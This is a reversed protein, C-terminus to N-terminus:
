DIEDLKRKYNKVANDLLLAYENNALFEPDNVIENADNNSAILIDNDVRLDAYKFNMSGSQREGFFEGPGRNVLDYEALMFGDTTTELMKLRKESSETTHESALFCYPQFSSRMVRGRLQHLTAVGFREAGLILITTANVINVGVEIVSTAVLIDIEKNLFKTMVDEKEDSSLKGHILGVTAKGKFYNQMNHYIETANATDLSESENILPTVVYIQHGLSIESIMHKIVDKKEKQSVYKTIVQKRNKPMEKIISIDMDGYASISLTRPIPTASMKLYNVDEGKNRILVRQKVGFRHEEDAIVIGLNKYDVDKQFLAHTGIIINTKGSALDDLIQKRQKSSTSGTLLSINLNFDSLVKSLTEFHQKSLIETPCMLAAQFGFSVVAMIAFIAVITKGSGVEGQLLRNMAYPQKLDKFIDEIAKDQDSTLSYSLSNRLKDIVDMQPTIIPSNHTEERKKYLYKMSVNYDLLEEYKLTKKAIELEEMSNPQHMIRVVQKRPALNYKEIYKCPLTEKVSNIHRRLVKDMIEIYKAESIDKIRYIPLITKDIEDVLVLESITFNNFGKNFKGSARIVIGYDLKTKLFTRNFITARIVKGDVDMLFNLASLKAKIFVTTVKSCISGELVIPEDMIAKDISSVIFNEYRTPFENLLDSVTIIDNKKFINKYRTLIYDENELLIDM